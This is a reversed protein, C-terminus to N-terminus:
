KQISSKGGGDDYFKIVINYTKVFRQYLQKARPSLSAQITGQLRKWAGQAGLDRQHIKRLIDQAQSRLVAPLERQQIADRFADISLTTTRPDKIKEM